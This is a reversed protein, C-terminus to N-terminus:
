KSERGWRLILALGVATSEFFSHRYIFLASFIFFFFLMRSGVVFGDAVQRSESYVLYIIKYIFLFFLLFSSFSVIDHTRIEGPVAGLLFYYYNPLPV